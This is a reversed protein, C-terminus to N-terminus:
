DVSGGGGPQSPAPIPVTPGTEAPVRIWETIKGGSIAFDVYATEGAGPVCDSGGPGPRGTLLFRGNFFRGERHVSVLRAGCPLTANVLQAQAATRIRIVEAGDGAGNVFLSPLAFYKAATRLEGHRLASSWGGIVKTADALRNGSSGGCGAVVLAAVVVVAVRMGTPLRM